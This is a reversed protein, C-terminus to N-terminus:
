VGDRMPIMVQRELYDFTDVRPAFTAPSENAVPAAAAASPVLGPFGATLAAAFVLM